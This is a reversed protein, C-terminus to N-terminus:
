SLIPGILVIIVSFVVMIVLAFIGNMGLGVDWSQKGCCGAALTCTACFPSWMTSLLWGVIIILVFTMQTMGFAEPVFSAVLASGTVVPHIGLLAPLMMILMLCIALGVHFSALWEPILEPLREGIGSYQLAKGLFGASAYLSIQVQVKNLSTIYYNEMGSRYEKMHKQVLATLFPFLLSVVPIIVMLDWDTVVNFIVIMLIMILALALMTIVKSWHVVQGEDPTLLPYRAPERIMKLKVTALDILVFVVSLAIGIPILQLWTIDTSSTIVIMSAWAPSWFGSSSYCRVLTSMFIDDANYLKAQKSLLEYIIALTAVNILLGLIHSCAAVLLCFSLLSRMKTQAVAKLESQYDEYYFPLSIMPAFAFLCVLNANKMLATAWISLPAQKWIMLAAGALFLCTYVLMNAKKLRPFSRAVMVLLLVAGVYTLTTSSVFCSILYLVSFLLTILRFLHETPSLAKLKSM